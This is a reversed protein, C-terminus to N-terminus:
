LSNADVERGEVRDTRKNQLKGNLVVTHTKTEVRGEVRDTRKNRM